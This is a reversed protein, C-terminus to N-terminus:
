QARHESREEALRGGECPEGQLQVQLKGTQRLGCGTISLHDSHPFSYFVSDLVQQKPEVEVSLPASLTFM